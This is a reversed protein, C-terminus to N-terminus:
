AVVFDEAARIAAQLEDVNHVKLKLKRDKAEIELEVFKGSLRERLFEFFAKIHDLKVEAGLLGPLCGGAAKNGSPPNPDLIRYVMEVEDMSWLQAILHQAQEDCEDLTLEPDNFSIKLKVNAGTVMHGELHYDVSELQIFM